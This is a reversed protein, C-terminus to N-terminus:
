SILGELGSNQFRNVLVEITQEFLDHTVPIEDIINDILSQSLNVAAMPEKLAELHCNLAQGKGVILDNMVAPSMMGASELIPLGILNNLHTYLKPGAIQPSSPAKLTEVIRQTAFILFDLLPSSDTFSLFANHVHKRARWQNRGKKSVWVERGILHDEDVKINFKRPAFIIVDADIWIVRSMQKNLYKKILLLRALDTITPWRGFCNHLYKPPLVGLIDDGILKYHYKNQNAWYQVSDICRTITKPWPKAHFSQIVLTENM